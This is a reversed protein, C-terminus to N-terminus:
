AVTELNTDPSVAVVDRTMVEAVTRHTMIAEPTDTPEAATPSRSSKAGAIRPLTGAIASTATPHQTSTSSPRLWRYSAYRCRQGSPRIAGQDDARIM